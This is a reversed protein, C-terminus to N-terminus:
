TRIFPQFREDRASRSQNRRFLLWGGLLGVLAGLMAGTEGALFKGGLACVFLALLPLGYALIATRRVAGEAIAVRVRDGVTALGPNRVRFTRPTSCFMRGISQGGCGGPENCRGCGTEDMRVVAYDGDRSIITGQADTM